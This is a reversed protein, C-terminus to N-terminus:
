SADTSMTLLDRVPDFNIRIGAARLDSFTVYTSANDAASLRAFLAPEMQDQLLSLISGLRVEIMSNGSIRLDVNGLALGNAQVPKQLEITQNLASPSGASTTDVKALDFQRLGPSLTHREPTARELLAALAENRAPEVMDAETLVLVPEAALKDASVPAARKPKAATSAAALSPAPEVDPLAVNIEIPEIAALLMPDLELEATLEMVGLNVEPISDALSPPVQATRVLAPPETAAVEGKTGESFQDAQTLELAVLPAPLSISDAKATAIEVAEESVLREATGAAAFKRTPGAFPENPAEANAAAASKAPSEQYTLGIESQHVRAVVNGAPKYNGDLGPKVREQTKASTQEFEDSSIKPLPLQAESVAIAAIALGAGGVVFYQIMGLGSESRNAASRKNNSETM